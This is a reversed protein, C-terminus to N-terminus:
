NLKVSSELRLLVNYTRIDLFNLSMFPLTHTFSNLLIKYYSVVCSIKDFQEESM